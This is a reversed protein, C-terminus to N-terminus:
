GHVKAFVHLAPGFVLDDAVGIRVPLTLAATRAISLTACRLRQIVGLFDNVFRLNDVPRLFGDFVTKDLLVSCESDRNPYVCSCIQSMNGAVAM